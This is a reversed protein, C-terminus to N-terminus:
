SQKHRESHGGQQGRQNHEAERQRNQDSEGGGQQRNAQQNPDRQKDRQPNQGGQGQQHQGKKSPDDGQQRGAQGQDKNAM